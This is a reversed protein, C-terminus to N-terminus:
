IMLLKWTSQLVSCFGFIFLSALHVFLRNRRTWGLACNLAFDQNEPRYRLLPTVAACRTLSVPSFLLKVELKRGPRPLGKLLVVLFHKHQSWVTPVLRIDGPTLVRRLSNLLKLFSRVFRSSDVGSEAFVEEWFEGLRLQTALCSLSPGIWHTHAQPPDM